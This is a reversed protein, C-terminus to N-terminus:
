ELKGAPAPAPVRKVPWSILIVAGVILGAAWLMGTTVQEGGLAWGLWVAVLPNVYAYTAAVAPTAHRLVYIYASFGVWSGFVILYLTALWSETTVQSFSFGHHEGHIFGAITMLVCGTCMQMASMMMPSTKSPVTKSYISGVSWSLAAVVVLLFPGIATISFDQAGRGATILLILGLFGIILGIVTRVGPRPGKLWLWGLLVFWFPGSGVMLATAGSPVYQQAFVVGGNGFLLLLTGMVWADKWAGPKVREKKVFHLYSYLLGGAFFFRFGAMFFPPFTAIAKAIALYTSGWFIWM